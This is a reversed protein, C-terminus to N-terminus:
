TQLKMEVTVAAPTHLHTHPPTRARAFQCAHMRGHRHIHTEAETEGTYGSSLQEDSTAPAKFDTLSGPANYASTCSYYKFGGDHLLATPHTNPVQLIDYPCRTTSEGATGRPPWFGRSSMDCTRARDPSNVGKVLENKTLVMTRGLSDSQLICQCLVV